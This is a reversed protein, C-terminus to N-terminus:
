RLKRISSLKAIVKETYREKFTAIIIAIFLVIANIAERWTAPTRLLTLGVELIGIFIVGGLIGKIKGSGGALSVGGIISGAFALFLDAGAMNTPVCGLFGTYFLGAVGSLLGSIMFTTIIVREVNVGCGKAASPDSGIAYVKLGASTSSLFFHLVIAVSLMSLVAIPIKGLIFAVGPALITRSFGYITGPAIVVNLGYLLIMMALTQLFPNIHIKAIFFGNVMGVIAGIIPYLLFLFAIPAGPWWVVHIMGVIIASFAAIAGVSLDFHGSIIVISEAYILFSLMSVVYVMNMANALNLNTLLFFLVLLGINIIWVLNDLSFFFAQYAFFKKDM